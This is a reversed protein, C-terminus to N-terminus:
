YFSVEKGGIFLKSIASAGSELVSVEVTVNKMDQEIMKGENQPVFYSEIGYRIRVGDWTNDVIGKMVVPYKKRLQESDKGVAVVTYYRDGEKKELATYITDHKEFMTNAVLMEPKITSIKYNLVVYDGSFLSRPDIPECQLIIKEGKALIIEQKAIMVGLVCLQAAVVVPFFMRQFRNMENSQKVNSM